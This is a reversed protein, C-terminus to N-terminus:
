RIPHNKSTHVGKLKSDCNSKLNRELRAIRHGNETNTSLDDM